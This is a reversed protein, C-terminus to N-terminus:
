KEMIRGSAGSCCLATGCGRERLVSAGNRSGHRPELSKRPETRINRAICSLKAKISEKGHFGCDFCLSSLECDLLVIHDLNILERVRIASIGDLDSVNQHHAFSVRHFKSGGEHLSCGDLRGHDFLIFVM